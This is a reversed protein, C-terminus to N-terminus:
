IVFQHLWINLHLFFDCTKFSKQLFKATKLGAFLISENLNIHPNSTAVLVDDFFINKWGCYLVTYWKLVKGYDFKMKNSKQYLIQIM